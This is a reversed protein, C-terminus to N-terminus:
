RVMSSMVAADDCHRENGGLRGAVRFLLPGVFEDALREVVVLGGRGHTREARADHIIDSSHLGKALALQGLLMADQRGSGYRGAVKAHVAQIDVCVVRADHGVDGVALFGPSVIIDLKIYM